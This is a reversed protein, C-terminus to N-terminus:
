EGLHARYAAIAATYQGKWSLVRALHVRATPHDPALRLATELERVAEDGQDTWSLVEGLAAHLDASGPALLLARRYCDVAEERRGAQIHIDALRILGAADLQGPDGLRAYYSSARVPDGMGQAIGAAAEIARRDPPERAILEELMPLAEPGRGTQILSSAYHWRIGTRRLGLQWAKAYDEAAAAYDGRAYANEARRFAVADRHVLRFAGTTVVALIALFVAIRVAQARKAQIVTADAM